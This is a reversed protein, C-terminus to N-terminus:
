TLVPEPGMPLVAVRPRVQAATQARERRQLVRGFLTIEGPTLNLFVLSGIVGSVAVAPLSVVQNIGVDQRLIFSDKRVLLVTGILQDHADVVHMGYKLLNSQLGRRESVGFGMGRVNRCDSYPQNGCDTLPSNECL